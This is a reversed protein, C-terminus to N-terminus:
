GGGQRDIEWITLNFDGGPGLRVAALKEGATIARSMRGLIANSLVEIEGENAQPYTVHLANLLDSTGRSLDIILENSM